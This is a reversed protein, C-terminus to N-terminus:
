KLKLGLHGSWEEDAMKNVRSHFHKKYLIYYYSLPNTKLSVGLLIFKNDNICFLSTM